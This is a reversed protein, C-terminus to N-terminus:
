LNCCKRLNEESNPGENFLLDIISLNPIFGYKNIFVQNYSVPDFYKDKKKKSEKPHIINRCDILNDPIEFFYESTFKIKRKLELAKLVFCITKYNLDFLFIEKEQYFPIIDDIYFEYFPSSKYASEISKFHLKQWNTDYDIEIDTIVAKRGSNKKVPIVMTQLGNAGYIECRNRYSQKSFNEFKEIFIEPCFIIKTFYQIPPFYAISLLSGKELM